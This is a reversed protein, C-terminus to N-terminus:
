TVYSPEPTTYMKPTSEYFHTLHPHMKDLSISDLGQPAFEGRDVAQKPQSPQCMRLQLYDGRLNDFLTGQQVHIGKYRSAHSHQELLDLADFLTNRAEEYHVQNQFGDIKRLAQYQVWM